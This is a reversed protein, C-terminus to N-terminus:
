TSIVGSVNDAFLVRVRALPLVVKTVPVITEVVLVIVIFPVVFWTTEDAAPCSKPAFLVQVNDNGCFICLPAVGVKAPNVRVPPLKVVLAAAVCSPTIIAPLAPPVPSKSTVIVGVVREASLVKVNASPLVVNTAPVISVVDLVMDVVPPIVPPPSKDASLVQLTPVTVLIATVFPVPILTLPLGIVPLPVIM